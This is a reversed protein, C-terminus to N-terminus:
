TMTEVQRTSNFSPGDRTRVPYYPRFINTKRQYEHLFLQINRRQFMMNTKKCSVLHGPQFHEELSAVGLRQVDLLLPGMACPVLLSCQLPRCGSAELLCPLVQKASGPAYIAYISSPPQGLAPICFELLPAAPMTERGSPHVRMVICGQLKELNLRRSDHCTSRYGGQLRCAHSLRHAGAQM